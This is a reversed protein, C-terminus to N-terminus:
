SCKSTNVLLTALRPFIAIQVNNSRSALSFFHYFINVKCQMKPPSEHRPKVTSCFTSFIWALRCNLRCKFSLATLCTQRHQQSFLMGRDITPHNKHLRLFFNFGRLEVEPPWLLQKEILDHNAWWNCTYDTRELFVEREMPSRLKRLTFLSYDSHVLCSDNQFFLHKPKRGVPM